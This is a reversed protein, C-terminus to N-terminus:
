SATSPSHLAAALRQKFEPKSITTCVVEVNSKPREPAIATTQNM